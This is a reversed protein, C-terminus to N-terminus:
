VGAKTERLLDRVVEASAGGVALVQRQASLYEFIKSTYFGKINKDDWGLHLLIQSERQKQLSTSRSVVGSQHVIDSLNHQAIEKKLWGQSTGYFRVDVDKRDIV